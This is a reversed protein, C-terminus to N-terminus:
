DLSICGTRCIFSRFSEDYICLLNLFDLHSTVRDFKVRRTKTKSTMEGAGNINKYGRPAGKLQFHKICQKFIAWAPM